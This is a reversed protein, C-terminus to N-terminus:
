QSRSQECINQKNYRTIGGKMEIMAKVLDAESDVPVLIGNTEDVFEEPGGCITAIVPLGTFM